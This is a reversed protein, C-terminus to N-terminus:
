GWLVGDVRGELFGKRSVKGDYQSLSTMLGWKMERDETWVWERGWRLGVGM